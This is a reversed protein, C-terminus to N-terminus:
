QTKVGRPQEEPPKLKRFSRYLADHLLLADLRKLKRWFYVRRASPESPVKYVLLLWLGNLQSELSRPLIARAYRLDDGSSCM